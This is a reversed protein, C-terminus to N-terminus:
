VKQADDRVEVSRLPGDDGVNVCPSGATARVHM